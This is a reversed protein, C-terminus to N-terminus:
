QRWIAQSIKTAVSEHIQNKSNTGGNVKDFSAQQLNSMSFCNLCFVISENTIM